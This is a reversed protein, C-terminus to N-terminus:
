CFSCFDACSDRFHRLLIMQDYSSFISTILRILNWKEIFSQFKLKSSVGVNFDALLQESQWAAQTLDNNANNADVTIEISAIVDDNVEFADVVLSPIADEISNVITDQLQNNALDFQARAAENFEGSSITYEVAGSEMDISVDIDSPHVGLSEAVSNTIADRIEIESIDQPINVSMSGTAEYTTVIEIDSEDVGYLEAVNSTYAEIEDSPISNSVTTTASITAVWGSISPTASPVSTSPMETPKVTPAKSPASTIFELVGEVEFSPDQRQLHEVVNDVIVGPNSTDSADVSVDVNAIINTSPVISDIFIGEIIFERQEIDDIIDTLSEVDNSTIIYTAVGIDNYIIEIDSPHLNLENALSSELLNM